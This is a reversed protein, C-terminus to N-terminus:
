EVDQANKKSVLKNYRTQADHLTKAFLKNAEEEGRIKPLNFYRAENNLFEQFKSWDPEKSDLQLPKELRPDYRYLTVYGCEVANKMVKPANVLGGKIGQEACPSYAIIISPGDYSEAERFAKITQMQNAGMAVSAVYCHGYEMVIQGLDKKSLPKGGAAFKAISAAQSSKSSQGGTNSYVETDLVLVNVNLNNAMVHDLGGYGIDYAWGDGGVIWVSKGVLDREYGLLEKVAEVKSDKVGKVIKDKLERQAERNDKADLYAQFADKLEPEVKDLNEEMVKLIRAAKYNQAIAMGFGYEANDEFLSNAWAVGNDDNDTIFPTSPTSSCYIMSCGTANAVMMDKGFMQSALRYYPAEGCGPCCGSVEFYPMLLSSHQITDERAYEPKYVTEKYMYDALPEQNLADNVEAVGLAKTPCVTLCVGCGVCNAPSLQIRYKLGAESAGKYAALKKDDVFTLEVNNADAIEQAKKVENEDLLFPRITAHPCAFACQGCAVCKEADWEPVQTAITRKEKFSVNEPISGDLVGHKMFSSVPMQYGELANIRQLNDDFYADGTKEFLSDGYKLDKWAPDVDVKVLGSKGQDIADCNNQVVDEGKRAYTHRASDKMLEVATDYPMIQENLAFFASQLITNTHRGMHTDLAIQTANIIYFNANKEALRALMRNPLHSAIEDKSFTTNLLFTGGEKLDKVMDYKFCYSDLSCSIFDAQDIYYPSHIPNKGFRLHSRTVGGAKRSDYAFYAQSYLDTNNGIIKVTSKNAGVTGDSGLGYFLCSTYDADIKVPVPELSLHTVDDEIGITFEEKPSDKKLEEYVANIQAPNTDKSSLGYRGGIITLDTHKRLAYCVDLYLPERTGTEKSRDLVAIKKVTSPLVKELYEQSFPRYLYVKILGVKEGAKVLADITEQITDTVSGMAVIVREADKAGYYVFPAYDRGTHDSIAKLYKEAVAPVKAYHENQAEAAQFYIDDNQSGGRTIANGHPNLAKDRFAQVKDMPLLSKLFDYDMVEIKDVEHSTRFGDFFHMVPVSADIAILHAAGALDMCDQVSHSCLMVIGTQRCAYVDQHDGFISLTHTALSRAAVHIVGPLLEGKLKYINPIMLLLGQSATYTTALAGGQLAGHIAGAAGGESQMEVVKVKDGFVNVRGETAWADTNEAMPSSPTIPYIGAVETFAYASHATAANGDMAEFVKKTETMRYTGGTELM